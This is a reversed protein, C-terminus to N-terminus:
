LARTVLHRIRGLALPSLPMSHSRCVWLKITGQSATLQKSRKSEYGGGEALRCAGLDVLDVGARFKSVSVMKRHVFHARM